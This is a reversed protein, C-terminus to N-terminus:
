HLVDFEECRISHFGPWKRTGETQACGDTVKMKGDETVHEPCKGRAWDVLRQRFSATLEAFEPKDALNRTEKPDEKLNFLVEQGFAETYIYKYDGSMACFTTTADGCCGYFDREQKVEFDATLDIKTSKEVPNEIGAMSLITNFLYSLEVVNDCRVGKTRNYLETGNPAKIMLPVHAAGEFYTMKAGMNHDGMMDGHDSTFIIYTNDMLGMERLRAFLLGLSYDIQTICAYYARKVAQKQKPSLRHVNNLLFTSQLFGKPMKDFDESWDGYAPLPMDETEYLNWYNFCPDLPPHPKAFSTWLFFPRTEDRTELFEVSRDVTWHTLSKNEDVTSIVPEVENEGVGHLKPVGLNYNRQMMRYYDLPLEMHEFGYNARAPTFHMKGVARTQYGNRTLIAPLTDSSSMFASHDCNKCIGSDYGRVGTMISTRSPVCVPCDAYTRTYTVGEDTLWNLHPTYIVDNGLAQITDFRQQDTTILIINPKQNNM